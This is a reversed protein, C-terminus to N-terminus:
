LNFLTFYTFASPIIFPAIMMMMMMMMMMMVVLTPPVRQSCGPDTWMSVMHPAEVTLLVERLSESGLLEM